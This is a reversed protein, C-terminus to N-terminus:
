KIKMNLLKEAEERTITEQPPTITFNMRIFDNHEMLWGSVKYSVTTFKSEVVMRTGDPRYITDGVELNDWTKEPKAEEVIKYEKQYYWFGKESVFGKLADFYNEEDYEKMGPVLSVIDIKGTIKNKVKDGEKFNPM